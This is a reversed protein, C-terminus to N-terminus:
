APIRLRAGRKLMADEPLGNAERLAQISVGYRRALGALTEGARVVHTHAAGLRAPKSRVRVGVNSPSVRLRQGS